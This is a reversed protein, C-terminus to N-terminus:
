RDAPSTRDRRPRLELPTLVVSDIRGRGQIGTVEARLRRAGAPLDLTDSPLPKGDELYTRSLREDDAVLDIRIVHATPLADLIRGAVAVRYRGPALDIRRSRRVEDAALEWPADPLALPVALSEPRLPGSWSVLARDDYGDLLALTAERRDVLTGPRLGAILIGYAVTGVMWGRAGKLWGLAFVALLSMSLLIADPEELVYSPWVRDLDLGRALVKLLASDGDARNHLARPAECAVLIVGLGAGALAAALTKRRTATEAILLAIAPLCPVLFRAPPCTGGWWMSFSANVAFATAALLLARATPGPARHLLAAAGPIALLALPAIPFLGFERDFLLAPAGWPARLPTVDDRFGSGYAASLSPRGYHAHLFWLLGVVSLALPVFSFLRRRPSAPWTAIVLGVAAMPLYKPHLWPVAAAAVAAANQWATGAGPAGAALFLATALAVPMEPYLSVAYFAFPPLLALVVASTAAPGDSARAFRYTLWVTLAAIVSLFARAAPYGGIAYAPLILASLGPTHISYERGPPSAPSTHPALTGSYFPAYARSELEDRLDLDGDTRLSEAMTLYHPEDGQPGAAGPLHLGVALFFVLAASPWVFSPVRGGRAKIARAIAVGAAACLVVRMAVPGFVLLAVARGTIVPVLPAAALLGLWLPRTVGPALRRALVAFMAGAIWSLAVRRASPPDVVGRWPGDDTPVVLFTTHALALPLAVALALVVHRAASRVAVPANVLRRV